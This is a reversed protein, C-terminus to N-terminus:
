GLYNKLDNKLIKDERKIASLINDVIAEDIQPDNYNTFRKYNDIGHVLFSKLENFTMYNYYTNEYILDLSLVNKELFNKLLKVNKKTSTDMAFNQEGLNDNRYSDIVLILDEIKIKDVKDYDISKFLIINSTKDLGM